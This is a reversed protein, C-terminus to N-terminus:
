TTQKTIIRAIEKAAENRVASFSPFDNLDIIFINGDSDVICDGGYIELGIAEAARAAIEHMRQIDFNYFRTYGNIRELGFKSKDAAPYCHRFFDKGIGYFKIIDGKCHETYVIRRINREQMCALFKVAENIDTAYSVDDKHCSWGEGRKIWAPFKLGNFDEPKEIIRFVPQPINNEKLIHMFEIRSCNNVAAPPNTVRTGDKEAAKLKELVEHKRSMHCIVEIGDPIGGTEDIAIVNHGSKRLEKTICELIAADNAVMNPSNDPNRAITAIKM